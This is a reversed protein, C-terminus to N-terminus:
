KDLFYTWTDANPYFIISSNSCNATLTWMDNDQIYQCNADYWQVISDGYYSTYYLEPTSNVYNIM